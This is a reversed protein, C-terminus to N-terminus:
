EEHAFFSGNLRIRRNEFASIGGEKKLENMIKTVTERTLGTMGAIDQHTLPLSLVFDRGDKKGHKGCLMLLLMKVRQSASTHSMIEITRNSIRIRQCFTQLLSLLIKKQTYLLSFFDDKSIIAITSDDMAAVSASAAKGDILSMEGFFDGTRHIALLLEKGEESVRIVKVGGSLVVYMFRNADEQILVTENKVFKKVRIKDLSQFLEEEDLSSFLNFNKMLELDGKEPRKARSSFAKQQQLTGTGASRLYGAVSLGSAAANERLRRLEERSVRISIRAIRGKDDNMDGGKEEKM